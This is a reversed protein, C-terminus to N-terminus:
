PVDTARWQSGCARANGVKIAVHKDLLFRPMTHQMIIHLDYTVKGVGVPFKEVPNSLKVAAESLELKIFILLQIKACNKSSM